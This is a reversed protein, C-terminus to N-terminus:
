EAAAAALRELWARLDGIRILVKDLGALRFGKPFDPHNNRLRWFTSRSINGMFRRAGNFDVYEAGALNINRNEVSDKAV